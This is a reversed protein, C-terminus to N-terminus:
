IDKRNGTKIVRKSYHNSLLVKIPSKIYMQMYLKVMKVVPIDFMTLPLPNTKRRLCIDKPLKQRAKVM